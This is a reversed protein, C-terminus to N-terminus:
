LHVHTKCCCFPICSSSALMCHWSCTTGLGLHGLAASPTRLLDVATHRSVGPPAPSPSPPFGWASCFAAADDLGPAGAYGRESPVSGAAAHPIAAPGAAARPARANGRESFAAPLRQQWAAASRIAPWPQAHWGYADAITIRVTHIDILTCLLPLYAPKRSPAGHMCSACVHAQRSRHRVLGQLARSVERRLLRGHLPAVASRRESCRKCLQRTSNRHLADCDSPLPPPPADAGVDPSSSIACRSSRPCGHQRHRHFCFPTLPQTHQGHQCAYLNASM